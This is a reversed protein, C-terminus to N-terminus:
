FHNPDAGGGFKMATRTVKDVVAEFEQTTWAACVNKLREAIEQRLAEYTMETKSDQGPQRANM